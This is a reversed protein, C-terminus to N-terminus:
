RFERSRRHRPHLDAHGRCRRGDHARAHPVGAANRGLALRLQGPQDNFPEFFYATGSGLSGDAYAKVAGIRLFPGGFAHRIGMKAQDDVRPIVACRLHANDTRRTRLLESYVAIDAYEPNMDQVSTVGSRRRM